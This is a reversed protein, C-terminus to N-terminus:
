LAAELALSGMYPRWAQMNRAKHYEAPYIANRSGRKTAKSAAAVCKCCKARREGPVELFCQWHRAQGRSGRRARNATYSNGLPMALEGDVEAFYRGEELQMYRMWERNAPIGFLVFNRMAKIGARKQYRRQSSASKGTLTEITKRSIPREGIIAVFADFLVAKWGPRFLAGIDITAKRRDCRLGLRRYAKGHAELQWYGRSWPNILGLDHAQRLWRRFTRASVHQLMRCKLVDREILGRGNTDLYHAFEWLRLAGAM